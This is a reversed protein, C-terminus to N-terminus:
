MVTKVCFYLKNKMCMFTWVKDGKIGPLGQAGPVGTPGREGKSGQQFLRNFTCGTKM